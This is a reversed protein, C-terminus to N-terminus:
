SGYLWMYRLYAGVGKLRLPWVKEGTERRREKTWGAGSSRAAGGDCGRTARRRWAVVVGRWGDGEGGTVTRM